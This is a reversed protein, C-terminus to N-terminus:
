ILLIEVFLFYFIHTIYLFYTYKIHTNVNKKYTKCDNRKKQIKRTTLHEIKLYQLKSDLHLVVVVVELDVVDM